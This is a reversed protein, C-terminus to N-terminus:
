VVNENENENENNSPMVSEGLKMGLWEVTEEPSGETSISVDAVKKRSTLGKVLRVHSKPLSLRRALLVEVSTNAAGDQARSSVNLSVHHHQTTSTELGFDCRTLSVHFAHYRFSFVISLRGLGSWHRVVAVRRRAL